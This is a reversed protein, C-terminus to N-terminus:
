ARLAPFGLSHRVGTGAVGARKSRRRRHSASRCVSSSKGEAYGGHHGFSAAPCHCAPVNRPSSLTWESAPVSWPGSRRCCTRRASRGGIRPGQPARNRCRHAHVRGRQHRLAAPRQGGTRIVVGMPIMDLPMGNKAGNNTGPLVQSEIRRVAETVAQALRQRASPTESIERDRGVREARVDAVRCRRLRKAIPSM